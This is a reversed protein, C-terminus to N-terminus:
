QKQCYLLALSPQVLNFPSSGGTLSSIGSTGFNSAVQGGGSARLDTANNTFGSDTSGFISLTHSHSAMEAVTLTHKEEGFIQGLERTSLGNAGAPNVGVITRGQASPMAAWGPPCAQLNFAVVAGAPVLSAFSKNLDAATLVDGDKFVVPPEALAIASALLVAAPLTIRTFWKKAARPLGIDIVIVRSTM